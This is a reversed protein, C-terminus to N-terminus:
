EAAPLLIVDAVTLDNQANIGFAFNLAQGTMDSPPTNIRDPLTDGAYDFGVTFKGDTVDTQGSILAANTWSTDAVDNCALIQTEWGNVPAFMQLWQGTTTANAYVGSIDAVTLDPNDESITSLDVNFGIGNNYVDGGTPIILSIQYDLSTDYNTLAANQSANYASTMPVRYGEIIDMVLTVPGDAFEDETTLTLTMTGPQAADSQVRIIGNNDAASAVAGTGGDNTVEVVPNACTISNIVLGTANIAEAAFDIGAALEEVTCTRFYDYQSLQIGTPVDNYVTIARTGTVETGTVTATITIPEAQAAVGTILGDEDVTAVSEDSSSWEVEQGDIM